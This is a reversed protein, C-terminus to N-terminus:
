VNIAVPLLEFQLEVRCYVKHIKHLMDSCYQQFKKRRTDQAEQYEAHEKEDSSPPPPDPKKTLEQPIDAHLPDNEMIQTWPGDIRNIQLSINSLDVTGVQNLVKSKIQGCCTSMVQKTVKLQASHGPTLQALASHRSHATARTRPPALM